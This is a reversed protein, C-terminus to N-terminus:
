GYVILSFLFFSKSPLSSLTTQKRIFGYGRLSIHNQHTMSDRGIGKRNTQCSSAEEAPWDRSFFFSNYLSILWLFISVEYVQLWHQQSLIQRLTEQVTWPPSWPWHLDPLQPHAHGSTRTRKQQQLWKLDPVQQLNSRYIQLQNGLTLWTSTLNFHAIKLLVWSNLYYFGFISNFWCGM